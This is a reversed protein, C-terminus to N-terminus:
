IQRRLGSFAADVLATNRLAALDQSEETTMPGEHDILRVLRCLTAADLRADVHVNLLAALAQCEPAPMAKFVHYLEDAVEMRSRAGLFFQVLDQAPLDFVERQIERAQPSQAAVRMGNVVTGWLVTVPELSSYRVDAFYRETRSLRDEVSARLGAPVDALRCGRTPDISAAQIRLVWYLSSDAGGYVQHWEALASCMGDFLIRSTDTVSMGTYDLPYWEDDLRTLGPRFGAPAGKAASRRAPVIAAFIDDINCPDDAIKM